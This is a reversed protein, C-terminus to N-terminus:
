QKVDGQFSAVCRCQIYKCLGKRDYLKKWGVMKEETSGGRYIVLLGKFDSKGSTNRLKALNYEYM